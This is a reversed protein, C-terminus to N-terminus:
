STHIAFRRRSAASRSGGGAPPRGCRRSTKARHVGPPRPRPSPRRPAAAVARMAIVMLRTPNMQEAVPSPRHRGIECFCPKVRGYRVAAGPHRSITRLAGRRASAVRRCDNAGRCPRIRMSGVESITSAHELSCPPRHSAAPHMTMSILGRLVVCRPSAARQHCAGQWARRGPEPPTRPALVARNDTRTPPNPSRGRLAVGQHV